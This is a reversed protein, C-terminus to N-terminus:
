GLSRWPLVISVETGEGTRSEIGLEAGIAEARRRLNRLGNGSGDRAGTELGRGDDRVMVGFGRDDATITVWVSRAGAHRVVNNLVERTMMVVQHRVEVAVTRNQLDEPMGVHCAMGAQRLFKAAHDALYCAVDSVEQHSPQIAWVAAGLAAMGRRTAQLGDRLNQAQVEDSVGPESARELALAIETMTAGLDDHLDRAIRAREQNIAAVREQRNAGRAYRARTFRRVALVTLGGGAIAVSAVVWRNVWFPPHSLSPVEAPEDMEVGSLTARAELKSDGPRLDPLLTNQSLGIDRGDEGPLLRVQFRGAEETELPQLSPPVKMSHARYDMEIPHGHSRAMDRRDMGRGRSIEGASPEIKPPLAQLGDFSRLWTRGNSNGFAVSPLAVSELGQEIGFVILERETENPPFPQAAWALLCGWFLLCARGSVWSVTWTSEWRFREVAVGRDLRIM